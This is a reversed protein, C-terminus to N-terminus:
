LAQKMIARVLAFFIFINPIDAVRISSWSLWKGEKKVTVVGNNVQIDKIQDWSIWERGNSVGQMGVSLKGFSVVSGAKYASIVEPLKVRTVMDGIIGGLKGVNTIRDNLIVERGDISRITYKHQTGTYIGNMYRKTVSQWMSEVQEWRFADLKGGRTFAFGESYIYVHWSRYLLPYLLCYLAVLLLIVGLGIGFPANNTDNINRPSTLLTYGFFGFGGAGVLAILGCFLTTKTYKVNYEQQFTGLQYTASLQEVQMSPAQDQTVQIM